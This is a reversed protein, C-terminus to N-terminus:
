SLHSSKGLFCYPVHPFRMKNWQTLELSGPFHSGLMLLKVARSHLLLFVSPQREKERSSGSPLLKIVANSGLTLAAQCRHAKIGEPELRAASQSCLSSVCEQFDPKQYPSLPGSSAWTVHLKLQAKEFIIVIPGSHLLGQSPPLWWSTSKTLGYYGVLLLKNLKDILPQIQSMAWCNLQQIKQFMVTEQVVNVLFSWTNKMM